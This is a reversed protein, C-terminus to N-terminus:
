SMFARKLKESHEHHRAKKEMKHNWYANAAEVSVRAVRDMREGNSTELLAKMKEIMLEEWAHEALEMMMRDMSHEDKPRSGCGSSSCGCGSNSCCQGM